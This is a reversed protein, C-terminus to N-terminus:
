VGERGLMPLYNKGFEFMFTKRAQVETMGEGIMLAEFKMQGEEKLRQVLALDEDTRPNTVREHIEPSLDIQLGYKISKQRNAGGFIEHREANPKGTEACVRFPKDKYGNFLKKKKKDKPKPVACTEYYGM